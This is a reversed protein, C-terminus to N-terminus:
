KIDKFGKIKPSYFDLSRTSPTSPIYNSERFTYSSTGIDVIVGVHGGGESTLILDGVEPVIPDPKM